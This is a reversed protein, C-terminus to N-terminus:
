SPTMLNMKVLPMLVIKRGHWWFMYVNDCGKYTADVDYQWPRGLLIHCTDIEVVNCIVEDKNFKGISFSVLCFTTIRTEAEKKIWSIKYPHLHKEFKLQLTAVLAKSVINECSKSEIILNCM